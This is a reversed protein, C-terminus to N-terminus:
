AACLQPEESEWLQVMALALDPSLLHWPILGTTEFAELAAEYGRDEAVQAADPSGADALYCRGTNQSIIRDLTTYDAPMDRSRTRLWNCLVYGVERAAYAAMKGVPWSWMSGIYAKPPAPPAAQGGARSRRVKNRNQCAPKCFKAGARAEVLSGGCEACASPERDRPPLACETLIILAESFLEDSGALRAAGPLKHESIRVASRVATLAEPTSLWPHLAPKTM